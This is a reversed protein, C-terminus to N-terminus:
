QNQRDDVFFLSNKNDVHNLHMTYRAILCSYDLDEKLKSNDMDINFTQCIKTVKNLITNRHFHMIDATKAVNCDNELYISLVDFLDTGNANDYRIIKAIIPHSLYVLMNHGYHERFCSACLYVRYYDSIDEFHTFRAGKTLDMPGIMDLMEKSQLYVTRLGLVMNSTRSIIAYANYKKLLDNFAKEDFIYRHLHDPVSLLVIVFNEYPAMNCNPFIMKLDEIFTQPLESGSSSSIIVFRIYRGIKHTLSSLRQYISDSDKSQFSFIDSLLKTLQGEGISSIKRTGSMHIATYHLLLKVFGDPISLGADTEFVLYGLPSDGALIPEMRFTVTSEAKATDFIFRPQYDLYQIGDAQKRSVSEFRSDYASSEIVRLGQSLITIIVKSNFASSAAVLVRNLSDKGVSISELQRRLELYREYNSILLNFLEAFPKSSVALNLKQRETYKEHDSCDTVVLNLCTQKDWM